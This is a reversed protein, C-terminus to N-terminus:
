LSLAAAVWRQSEDVDRDDLGYDELLIAIGDDDGALQAVREVPWRRGRLTPAGALKGPDVEIRRLGLENALWGGRRLMDRAHDLLEPRLAIQGGRHTDVYVGREVELVIAGIPDGEVAHHAVGLPAMLLPWDPYETRAADIAEHIQGYSFRQDLLWHVVIAEAVDHFDYLNAPRGRYWTPRVLGYRAWQGLRYGSVGALAGARYPTFVGTPDPAKSIMTSVDNQRVIRLGERRVRRRPDDQV